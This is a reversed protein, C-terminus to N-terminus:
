VALALMEAMETRDVVIDGRAVIEHSADTVFLCPEFPMQYEDPLPALAAESLDRVTKPNRYVESHIVVLDDRGEAEDVLLELIPGCSTTRCYAPSALLVVIPKDGELADALDDTHFPCRPVATCIPDVELSQGVTPTRVSPLQEGVLPVSVREAPFVQVQSNLRVGDYESDIDFLGPRPFTFALPVYPRPVGESRPTSEVPEGVSEGDFSVRFTMSGVIESVPVGEPDVLTYPLRAPVNAGIHPVDRPFMAALSVTPGPDIGEATTEGEGCAVLVGGLTVAGLGGLGSRLLTRRDLGHAPTAADHRISRRHRVTLSALGVEAWTWM